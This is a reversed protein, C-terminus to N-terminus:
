AVETPRATEVLMRCRGARITTMAAGHGVGPPRASHGLFQAAHAFPRHDGWSLFGCFKGASLSKDQFCPQEGRASELHFTDGPSHRAGDQRHAPRCTAAALTWEGEERRFIHTARLAMPVATEQGVLRVASREIAVTYALDGSVGSSLYEIGM